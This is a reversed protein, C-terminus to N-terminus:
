SYEITALRLVSHPLTNTDKNHFFSMGKLIQKDQTIIDTTQLPTVISLMIVSLMFPKNTVSLMFSISFTMISLTMLRFTMISLTMLRFTMISLAMLRFTMLRFTM